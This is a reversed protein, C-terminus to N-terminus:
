VRDIRREKELYTNAVWERKKFAIKIGGCNLAHSWMGHMTHNGEKAKPNTKFQM